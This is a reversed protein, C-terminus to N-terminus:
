RRHDTEVLSRGQPEYNYAPSVSRRPTQTSFISPSVQPRYIQQELLGHGSISDIAIQAPIIDVRPPFPDQFKISSPHQHAFSVRPATQSHSDRINSPTHYGLASGDVVERKVVTPLSYRDGNM